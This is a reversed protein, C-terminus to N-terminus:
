IVVAKEVYNLFFIYCQNEVLLKSNKLKRSCSLFNKQTQSVIMLLNIPHIFIFYSCLLSM